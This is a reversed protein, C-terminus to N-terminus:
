KKVWTIFSNVKEITDIVLVNFGLKQLLAIVYPQRGHTKKKPAKLEVFYMCGGPLLVLRDPIGTFYTPLFKICLGGLNEVETKLHSEIKSEKM